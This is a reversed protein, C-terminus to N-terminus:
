ADTCRGEREGDASSLLQSLVDKRHFLANALKSFGSSPCSFTFKTASALLLLDVITDVNFEETPVSPHHYHINVSTLQPINAFTQIRDSGYTQRLKKLTDHDDSAVFTVSTRFDRDHIQLFSHLDNSRKDTNRIHVAHYMDPLQRRRHDYADRIRSTVHCCRLVHIARPGGGCSSYFVVDAEDHAHELSTSLVIDDWVTHVRGNISRLRPHVKNPIDKGKIPSPHIRIKDNHHLMEYFAGTDMMVRVQGDDLFHFYNSFDDHLFSHRTDIVLVRRHEKAYLYCRWIQNLLDNLGSLPWCLVYKTM